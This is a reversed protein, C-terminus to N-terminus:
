SSEDGARWLPRKEPIGARRPWQEDIRVLDVVAATTAELAVVRAPGFGLLALRESPWRRVDLPGPPESVVLRGSLQLFGAACEATVAPPAFSRAVALDFAHRLDPSRALTEARGCTVTVRDSIGLVEVAHELFACRRQQADVLSIVAWPWELALALGPVGGGSGLDVVRRPREGAARALQRAHTVHPIVPGPGLFGLRRSEDLVGELGEPGASSM